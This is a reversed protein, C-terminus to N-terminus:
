RKTTDAKQEGNEANSEAPRSYPRSCLRSAKISRAKDRNRAIRALEGESLKSMANKQQGNQYDIIELKGLNVRVIGFTRTRSFTLAQNVTSVLSKNLLKLAIAMSLEYTKLVNVAVAM